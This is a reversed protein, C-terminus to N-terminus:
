QQRDTRQVVTVPVGEKPRMTNTQKVEIPGNLLKDPLKFTYSQYLRVLAIM